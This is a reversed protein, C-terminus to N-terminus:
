QSQPQLATQRFHLMMDMWAPLDTQAMGVEGLDLEGDGISFSLFDEIFHVHLGATLCIHIMRVNKDVTCPQTM